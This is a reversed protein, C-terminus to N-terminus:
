SLAEQKRADLDARWQQGIKGESELREKVIEAVQEPVEVYVGKQLDIAYGNLNLHFPIKKAQEPNVGPDFPIMIMVKRQKALHEKMKQADSKLEQDAKRQMQPEIKAAKAEVNSDKKSPETKSTQDDEESSNDESNEDSQEDQNEDSGAGTGGKEDPSVTGDAEVLRAILDEKTGSADLGREAALKKLENYKLDQYNTPM